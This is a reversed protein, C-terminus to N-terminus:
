HSPQQGNTTPLFGLHENWSCTASPYMIRQLKDEYRWLLRRNTIISWIIQNFFSYLANGAQHPCNYYVVAFQQTGPQRRLAADGHWAIYQELLQEPGFLSSNLSKASVEGHATFNEPLCASMFLIYLVSFLILPSIIRQVEVFLLSRNKRAM